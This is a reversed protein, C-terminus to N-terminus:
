QPILLMKTRCNIFITSRCSIIHMMFLCVWFVGGAMTTGGCTGKIAANKYPSKGASAQAPTLASYQPSDAGAYETYSHPCPACNPSMTGLMWLM